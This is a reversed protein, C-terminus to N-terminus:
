SKCRGKQLPWVRIFLGCKQCWRFRLKFGWKIPRLQLYQRTSSRGKIKTMHEDISQDVDDLFADMFANNFSEIVPRVKYTNDAHDATYNFLLNQLINQFRNRSFTNQIGNNGITNNWDWCPSISLLKNIAMVFHGRLFAEMEDSSTNFNSRCQLAYITM